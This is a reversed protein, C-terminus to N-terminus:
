RTSHDLAFRRKALHATSRYRHTTPSPQRNNKESKRHSTKSQQTGRPNFPRKKVIKIQGLQANLQSLTQDELKIRNALAADQQHFNIDLDQEAGHEGNQEVKRGDEMAKIQNQLDTVKNKEKNLYATALTNKQDLEVHESLQALQTQLSKLQNKKDQISHNFSQDRHKEEELQQAVLKDNFQM